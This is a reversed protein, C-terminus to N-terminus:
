TARDTLGTSLYRLRVCPPREGSIIAFLNLPGFEAMRRQAELSLTKICLNEIAERLTIHCMAMPDPMWLRIEELCSESTPAQFCSEPSAMQM